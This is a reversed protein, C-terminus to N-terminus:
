GRCIRDAFCAKRLSTRGKNQVVHRDASPIIGRIRVMRSARLLSRPRRRCPSLLQLLCIRVTRAMGAQEAKVVEESMRQKDVHERNEWEYAGLLLVHLGYLMALKALDQVASTFDELEIGHEHSGTM